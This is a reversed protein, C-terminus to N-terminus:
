WLSFKPSIKLDNDIHVISPRKRRYCHLIIEGDSCTIKQRGQEAFPIPMKKEYTEISVIKGKKLNASFEGNIWIFYKDGRITVYPMTDEISDVTITDFAYIYRESETDRDTLYYILDSYRVIEIAYRPKRLVILLKSLGFPIGIFATLPLLLHTPLWRISFGIFYFSTFFLMGLSQSVANDQVYKGSHRKFRPTESLVHRVMGFHQQMVNM